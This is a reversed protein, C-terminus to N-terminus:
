PTIQDMYNVASLPFHSPQQQQQYKGPFSSTEHLSRENM